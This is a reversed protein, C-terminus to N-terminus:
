IDTYINNRKKKAAFYKRNNTKYNIVDYNM